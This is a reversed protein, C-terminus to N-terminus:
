YGYRVIFPSSVAGYVNLKYLEFRLEDGEEALPMLNARISEAIHDRVKMSWSFDGFDLKGTKRVTEDLVTETGRGFSAKTCAAGLEAIQPEAYPFDLARFNL